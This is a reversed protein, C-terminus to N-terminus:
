LLLASICRFISTAKTLLCHNISNPILTLAKPGSTWLPASKCRWLGCHGNLQPWYVGGDGMLRLAARSICRWPGSKYLTGAAYSKGGQRKDTKKRGSRSRREGRGLPMIVGLADGRGCRVKEVHCRPAARSPPLEFVLEVLFSREPVLYSSICPSDVLKHYTEDARLMWM